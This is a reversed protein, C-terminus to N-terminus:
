AELEQWAECKSLIKSFKAALSACEFKDLYLKYSYNKFQISLSINGDKQATEATFLDKIHYTKSTDLKNGNFAKLLEILDIFDFINDIVKHYKKEKQNILNLHSFVSFERTKYEGDDEEEDYYSLISSSIKNPIKDKNKIRIKTKETKRETFVIFDGLNFKM